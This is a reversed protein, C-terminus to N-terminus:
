RIFSLHGYLGFDRWIPDFIWACAKETQKEIERAWSHIYASYPQLLDDDPKGRLTRKTEEEDFYTYIEM